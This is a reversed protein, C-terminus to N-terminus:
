MVAKVPVIFNGCCASKRSKTTDIPLPLCVLLAVNLSGLCLEERLGSVQEKCARKHHPRYTKKKERVSLAATEFVNVLQM